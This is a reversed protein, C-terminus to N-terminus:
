APRVGLSAPLELRLTLQNGGFAQGVRLDGVLSLLAVAEAPELGLQRELAAAAAEVAHGRADEFTAAATLVMVREDTEIWPWSPATGAELAVHLRVAAACEVAVGSLEGDGQVAHVDGAYLLADPVLVPLHVRAGVGLPRQDLNGGFAGAVGASCPGDAPAVGLCGIMPTRELVTGDGFHVGDDDIVCTRALSRPVRGPPLPGAHAHAGCWGIPGLEIDEVTVVLRDGPRAGTVALPGTLPNSMGVTPPPLEFSAGPPRDLLAGARADLTEFVVTTGPEVALRPPQGAAFDYAPSTNPIRPATM